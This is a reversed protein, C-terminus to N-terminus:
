GKAATRFDPDALLQSVLEPFLGLYHNFADPIAAAGILSSKWEAEASFEKEFAVAGSRTLTFRASLAARALPMASDVHTQTIVGSVVFPSSADLKGAGKLEAALTDGLFQAYSGNSTKPAAQSGARVIIRRDMATPAGPGATFAGVSVKAFEGRRLTQINDLSATPPPLPAVACAALSLASLAALGTLRLRM